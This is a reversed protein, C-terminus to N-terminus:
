REIRREALREERDIRLERVHPQDVIFDAYERGVGAGARDRAHHDLAGIVMALAPARDAYGRIDDISREVSQVVADGPLKEAVARGQHAGARRLSLRTM